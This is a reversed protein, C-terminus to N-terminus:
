PTVQAERDAVAAAEDAELTDLCETCIGDWLTTDLENGCDSCHTEEVPAGAAIAAVIAPDRRPRRRNRSM